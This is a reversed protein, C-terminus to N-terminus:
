DGGMCCCGSHKDENATDDKTGKFKKRKLKPNKLIHNIIVTFVRAPMAAMGDYNKLM